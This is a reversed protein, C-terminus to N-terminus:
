FTSMATDKAPGDRARVHVRRRRPRVGDDADGEDLLALVVCSFFHRFSSDNIEDIQGSPLSSRTEKIIIFRKHKLRCLFLFPM